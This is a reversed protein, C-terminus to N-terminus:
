EALVATLVVLRCHVLANKCVRPRCRRPSQGTAKAQRLVQVSQAAISRVAHRPSVILFTKELTHGLQVTPKMFYSKTCRGRPPDINGFGVAPLAGQANGRRLILDHLLCNDSNM